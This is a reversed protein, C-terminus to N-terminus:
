AASYRGNNPAFRFVDARLSSKAYQEPKQVGAVVLREASQAPRRGFLALSTFIPRAGEQRGILCFAAAGFVAAVIPAEISVSLIALGSLVTSLLM